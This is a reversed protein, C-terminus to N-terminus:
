NWVIKSGPFITKVWHIKRIEDRTAKHKVLYDLEDKLYAPTEDKVEKFMGEDSVLWIQRELLESYIRYAFHTLNGAPPQQSLSTDLKKGEQLMRIKKLADRIAMLGDTIVLSIVLDGTIDL